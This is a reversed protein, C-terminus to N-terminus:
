FDTAQSKNYNSRGNYNYKLQQKATPKDDSVTPTIFHPSQHRWHDDVLKQTPLTNDAKKKQIQM